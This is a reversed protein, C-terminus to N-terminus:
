VVPEVGGPEGRHLPEAVAPRGQRELGPAQDDAGHDSAPILVARAAARARPASALVDTSDVFQDVSGIPPLAAIVPDDVAQLLAIVFRDALIVPFGRNWFPRLTPDVPPALGLRNQERALIEYAGGLADQRASGDPARLTAALRPGLRAALPLRAFATGLWKSYPVYQRALMLGLRMLDRCLRAAIVASGLEDGIQAGRGVFAEEEAIRRWEAALVFRWVDPPYYALAHRIPLLEGLGDHFVRGGVVEGLRHSSTALWDFWGVGGRPDFGLMSGCWDGLGHIEVRHAVPEGSDVDVLVGVGDADLAFSTPYGAFRRPLQDGLAGELMQAQDRDDGRVLLELRPGWDHDRSVEDDFGLM